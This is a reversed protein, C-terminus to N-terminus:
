KIILSCDRSSFPGLFRFLPPDREFVVMDEESLTVRAEVGDGSKTDVLITLNAFVPTNASGNGICSWIQKGWGFDAEYFSANCVSTVAFYDAEPNSYVEGMEKLRESVKLFGKESDSKSKEEKRLDEEIRLHTGLEDLNIDEKRHKLSN